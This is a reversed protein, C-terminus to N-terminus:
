KENTTELNELCYIYKAPLAFLLQFEYKERGRVSLVSLILMEVVTYYTTFKTCSFLCKCLLYLLILCLPLLLLTLNEWKFDYLQLSVSFACFV